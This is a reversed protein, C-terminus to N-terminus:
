RIGTRRGSRHRGRYRGWSADPGPTAAEPLSTRRTQASQTPAWSRLRGVVSHAPWRMDGGHPPGSHCRRFRDQFHLVERPVERGPPRNERPPLNREDTGDVADTESEVSTLGETDDTLGAAPLGRQCAHDDAQLM